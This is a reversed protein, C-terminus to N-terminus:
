RLGALPDIDRRVARFAEDLKEAEREQIAAGRILGLMAFLLLLWTLLVFLVVNM